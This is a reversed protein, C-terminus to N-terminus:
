RGSVNASRWVRPPPTEAVPCIYGIGARVYFRCPAPQMRGLHSLLEIVVRRPVSVAVSGASTPLSTSIRESDFNHLRQIIQHNRV